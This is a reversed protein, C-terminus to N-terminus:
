YPQQALMHARGVSNMADDGVAAISGIHNRRASLRAIHHACPGDSLQAVHPVLYKSAELRARERGSRLQFDDAAGLGIGLEVVIWADRRYVRAVRLTYAAAEELHRGAGVASKRGVHSVHRKLNGRNMRGDADGRHWRHIMLRLEGRMADLGLGVLRHDIARQRHCQRRDIERAVLCQAILEDAPGRCLRALIEYVIGWTESFILAASSTKM